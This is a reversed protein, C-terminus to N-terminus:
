PAGASRALDEEQTRLIVMTHYRFPPVAVAVRGGTFRPELVQEVPQQAEEFHYPRMALAQRWTGPPLDAIIEIGEVPTPEAIWNFEWKATPPARVLHIILHDENETQLRYVLRKWFLKEPSLVQVSNEPETVVKVDPSWIYRSYRSMFQLTPRWSPVFGSAFHAQTAIFQAGIYNVTAWAWNSLGPDDRSVPLFFYGMIHNAGYRQVIYDRNDALRHLLKEPAALYGDTFSHRQQEDLFMVNSWGSAAQMSEDSVDGEFGSGCYAMIGKSKRWLLAGESPYAWNYWTGFTPNDAKLVESWVRHNRANLRAYDTDRDSPVNARGTYDYGTLVGLCGDFYVGDFGLATAYTKAREAAYKVVDELAFNACLHQWPTYPRDLHPASPKRRSGIEMPSALEMPNPYGGYVPDIAFQGNADYLVYEPHRRVEEYGMIGSFSSTQYFTSQVGQTKFRGCEGERAATNIHYGSQGALYEAVNSVRVGFDTPEGAFYHRQNYYTTWPDVKYHKVQGSYTHQHVRFWESAVAYFEQWRDLVTGDHDVFRVEIGRGYTEPGVSYSFTSARTTGPNLAFDTRALERVTDLDLHMLAILTGKYSQACTNVLTARTNANENEDYRVKNSRIDTITVTDPRAAREGPKHVVNPRATDPHVGDENEATQRRALRNCIRSLVIMDNYRSAPVVTNQEVDVYPGLEVLQRELSLWFAEDITNTRGRVAAVAAGFAGRKNRFTDDVQVADRNEILLGKGYLDGEELAMLEQAPDAPLLEVEDFDVAGQSAALSVHVQWLEPSRRMVHRYRVWVDSDVKVFLPRPGSAYFVPRLPDQTPGLKYAMFGLKLTGHGKAWVTLIYNDAELNLGHYASVYGGQGSIRGYADASRGGTPIVEFTVGKGHGGWWLPWEAADPCTWQRARLAQITSIGPQRGKSRQSLGGNRVGAGPAADPIGLAVIVALLLVHRAIMEIRGGSAPRDPQDPLRPTASFLLRKLLLVADKRRQRRFQPQFAARLPHGAQITVNRFLLPAIGEKRLEPAASVVSRLADNHNVIHEALAHEASDQLPSDIQGAVQSQHRVCRM